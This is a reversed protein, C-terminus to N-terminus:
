FWEFFQITWFISKFTAILVFEGMSYILNNQLQGLQIFSVFIIQATLHYDMHFIIIELHVKLCFIHKFKQTKAHCIATFGFRSDM